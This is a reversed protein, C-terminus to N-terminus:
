RRSPGGLKKLIGALRKIDMGTGKRHDARGAVLPHTEEFPIVPIPHNHMAPSMKWVWCGAIPTMSRRYGDGCRAAAGALCHVRNKGAKAQRKGAETNELGEEM